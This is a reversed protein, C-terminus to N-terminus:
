TRRRRGTRPDRPSLVVGKVWVSGDQFKAIQTQLEGRRFNVLVGQKALAGKLSAVNAASATLRVTQGPEVVGVYALPIHIKRQAANDASFGVSMRLETITKEGANRVDAALENVWSEDGAFTQGATINQGAVRLGDIKVPDRPSAVIVVANQAQAGLAAHARGGDGVRVRTVLPVAAFVLIIVCLM